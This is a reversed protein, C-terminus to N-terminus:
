YGSVVICRKRDVGAKDIMRCFLAEPFALDGSRVIEGEDSPFGEFSDYVFFRLDGLGYEQALKFASIFSAGRYVGFELYDGTIKSQIVHSFVKRSTAERPDKFVHRRSLDYLSRSIFTPLKVFANVLLSKM